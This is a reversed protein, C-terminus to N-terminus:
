IDMNSYRYSGRFNRDTAYLGLFLTVFCNLLRSFQFPLKCAHTCFSFFSRAFTANAQGNQLEDGQGDHDQQDNDELQVQQHGGGDRRERGDDDTHVGVTAAKVVGKVEGDFGDLADHHHEEDVQEGIGHALHEHGGADAGGDNVDGQRGADGGPGDGGDGEQHGAGQGQGGTGGPAGERGAGGDEQPQVVQQAAVGNQHQAGDGAAGAEAVVDAHDGVGGHEGAAQLVDLDDVTHLVLAGPGDQTDDDGDDDGEDHGQVQGGSLAAQLLSQGVDGGLGILDQLHLAGAGDGQQLLDLGAHGDVHDDGEQQNDAGGEGAHVGHQAQAGADHGGHDQADHGALTGEHGPQVVHDQHAELAGTAPGDGHHHPHSGEATDHVAHAGELRQGLQRNLHGGVDVM